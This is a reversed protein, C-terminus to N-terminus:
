PKMTITPYQPQAAAAAPPAPAAAVAGLLGTAQAVPHGTVLEVDGGNGRQGNSSSSSSRSLKRHKKGRTRIKMTQVRSLMRPIVTQKEKRNGLVVLLAIVVILIGHFVIVEMVGGLLAFAIAMGALGLFTASTFICFACASQRLNTGDVLGTAVMVLLVLIPWVPCLFLHLLVWFVNPFHYAMGREVCGWRQCYLGSASYAQCQCASHEFESQSDIDGIWAQVSKGDPSLSTATYWEDEPDALGADDYERCYWKVCIGGYEVKCECEARESEVEPGRIHCGNDDCQYCQYPFISMEYAGVSINFQYGPFREQLWTKQEARPVNWRWRSHRGWGWRGSWHSSGQDVYMQHRKCKSVEIQECTWEKCYERNTSASTAASKCECTGAEWEDPSDETALWRHCYAGSASEELCESQEIESDWYLKTLPYGGNYWPFGDCVHGARKAADEESCDELDAELPTADKTRCLSRKHCQLGWGMTQRCNVENKADYLCVHANEFREACEAYGALLVVVAAVAAGLAKGRAMSSDYGEHKEFAAGQSFVDGGTEIM